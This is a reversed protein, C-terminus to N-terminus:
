FMKRFELEIVRGRPSLYDRQYSLPVTGSGDTVTQVSDFLNQFRLSVRSGKLFPVQRTLDPMMSFEAFFNINVNTASGFRLDSTGPLGSAVVTSPGTWGGQFFTGFGKYFLGGNFEVSHRPSGSASLSDGNLLDLTPGGPAILVRNELQATHYVGLSWRGPAGGGGGFMAGMFGGRGGGGGGGARPPAGAPRAPPAGAAGAPRPGGMGMMGGGGEPAKGIAGSTNIGWRLRSSEQRAFTIPRQDIAVLRGTGDRTVRGPFAAEIAPTLLPFGATVDNSRNSFWEVLLNSNPIPLTWNASLKWDRQQERRLLPNGGSTVTVLVTEGRTFDYVPVNFTVAQPNGLQGLGPAAQNSIYSGQLNLKETVGWTLGASWDTLSGFDSLENWGGSINLTLDGLGAGFNERRSTLPIAVNVGLSVDGRSLSVPGTLSRTDSSDIGSWGYGARFTTAIEGGPLRIPRGVLTVLSAISDTNTKTRDFGPDTVAPLAGAIPLTGALAQAVLGSLDARRDIRSRTEVHNADVTGSLQWLGLSKNFGAGGQVTTSHSIRDLPDPLARLATAGGPATLLVTNLGSYAHSDTHTISGNLSVSGGIGGQGFGKTWALDMQFSRSDAILSRSAAPDPDTSVTPVNGPSPVLPRENEFLPSTDSAEVSVTFRNMKNIKLLTGELQWESFGGRTPISYDAEVRRNSYNDKLILNVVRSNPPFGYRLGVEEPLVEVRKIAEPPYNRMERFNTIRQGNVLVVPPGGGGRGRGSGTQPSVRDLLETVSSAGLAQIDAENLVAIPAQPADIQGGIRTAVVLIEDGGLLEDQESEDQEAAAADIASSGAAPQDAPAVEAPSALAPSAALLFSLTTFTRMIKRDAGSFHRFKLVSGGGHGKVRCGSCQM